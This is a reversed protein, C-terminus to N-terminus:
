TGSIIQISLLVFNNIGNEGDPHELFKNAYDISPTRYMINEKFDGKIRKAIM